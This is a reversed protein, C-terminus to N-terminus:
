AEIVPEHKAFTPQKKHAWPVVVNKRAARFSGLDGPILANFDM